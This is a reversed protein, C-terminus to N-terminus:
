PGACGASCLRDSLISPLVKSATGGGTKSSSSPLRIATPMTPSPRVLAGQDRNRLAREGAVREVHPRCSGLCARRSCASSREALKAHTEMLRKLTMLAVQAGTSSGHPHRATSIPRSSCMFRKKRGIRSRRWSSTEVSQGHGSYDFRLCGLGQQAALCRARTAKTSVMDSKLGIMWMLTTRGPKAKHVLYAIQRGRAGNGRHRIADGGESM